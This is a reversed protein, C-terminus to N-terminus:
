LRLMKGLSVGATWAEFAAADIGSPINVRPLAWLDAGAVVLGYDLTCAGRYGAAQVARRM